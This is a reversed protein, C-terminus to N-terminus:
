TRRHLKVMRAASSRIPDRPEMWAMTPPHESFFHIKRTKSLRSVRLSFAVLPIKGTKTVGFPAAGTITSREGHGNLLRELASHHVNYGLITWTRSGSASFQRNPYKSKQARFVRQWSPLQAPELVGIAKGTCSDACPVMITTTGSYQRGARARSRSSGTGKEKKQLGFKRKGRLTGRRTYYM